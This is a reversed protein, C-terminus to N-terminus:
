QEPLTDITFLGPVVTAVGRAILSNGDADCPHEMAKVSIEGEEDMQVENIRFVRKSKVPAGLVFLWGDYPALAAAINNAIAISTLPAVTPQGSKWVLVTYTGNVIVDLPTNLAGGAEISGSYINNWQAQGVDVYIYAGPSLVSDTPFTRFEIAKRIHRRQNCLLKAFKIAQSRNTVFQSLDFTQRVANLDQVGTLRVDVSRNRPFMGQVETERYIVTAILDQVNAGYDIFEERYSDELINGANFLAQVKVQTFVVGTDDCPLVPVLTERGGIRGLELLSFPATEAWFQRWPVQEAIVGDMFLNNARCFKKAKALAQIDIGEAVAYRGIGDTKDLITDLFIDPAYSSAGDPNSPYTGDDKIKRVKRGKKAFVSISRLDQVGQGSYVNFGLLSLNDYLQPFAASLDEEAQETVAKIELEPGNDFSFTLQADSRNSFLTWEDLDAPNNNLPPLQGNRPEINGYFQWKTQDAPNNITKLEGGSNEIYAFDVNGQTLMEAVTEAIPEFRFEWRKTKDPSIFRLDMFNDLDSSRRIAFIYPVRSFASKGIERYLVWFLMVRLKYGNDAESYKKVTKEGYNRARGNVRKFVRARLAFNVSRAGSITEYSADEVKTLCKTYFLDNFQAPNDLFDELAALENNKQNLQSQLAANREQEAATDRGGGSISIAGLIKGWASEDKASLLRNLAAIEAKGKVVRGTRPSRVFGEVVGYQNIAVNLEKEAKNISQNLAKKEKKTKADDLRDRLLLISNAIESVIPDSLSNNALVELSTEKDAQGGYQSAKGRFGRVAEIWEQIQLKDTTIQQLEGTISTNTVTVPTYIPPNLNIQNELSAIEAKVAIIQDETEAENDQFNTTGYDEAPCVGAEICEFTAILPGEDLEANELAAALRFRASGLKYISAADINSALARRAEQASQLPNYGKQRPTLRPTQDFQLTFRTAPIRTGNVIREPTMLNRQRGFTPWHNALFAADTITIGLPEDVQQGSPNRVINDVNIPIPAYVGCRTLTTPSYAQSFGPKTQNGDVVVQYAPADVPKGVSTPDQGDAGREKDSFLLIGAPSHYVWNKQATFQKIPTQGFAIRDFDMEELVGAGIVTMLQMFQSSGYSRVASWILSTNVRVGGQINDEINTYVLNVPEGYKALEQASNFGFRPAFVQDRLQARGQSPKPALLVSAVQLLTGVITLVLAVVGFDAQPKELRQTPTTTYDFQVQLFDLYEEESVGLQEILQHEYPLLKRTM